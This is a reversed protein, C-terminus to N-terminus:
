VELNRRDESRQACSPYVILVNRLAAATAASNPETSKTGAAVSACSRGPSLIGRAALRATRVSNGAALESVRVPVIFTVMLTVIPEFMGALCVIKQEASIKVGDSGANSLSAKM